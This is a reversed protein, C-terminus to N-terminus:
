FIQYTYKNFNWVVDRIIAKEGDYNLTEASVSIPVCKEFKHIKRIERRKTIQVVEIDRKISPRGGGELLGRYSATIIWPRIFGDLFDLNTELFGIGLTRTNLAKRTEAYLGGLFGYSNENSSGIEFSEDPLKVTQVFFLGGTDNEAPQVKSNTLNNLISNSIYFKNKDVQTYKQFESFLQDKNEDFSIRVLWQTTLPIDYNRQGLLDLFHNVIGGKIEIAM